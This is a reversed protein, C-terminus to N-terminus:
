TLITDTFLYGADACTVKEDFYERADIIWSDTAQDWWRRVERYVDSKILSSQNGEDGIWEFVYGANPEEIAPTPTRYLLLCSGKTANVEWMNVATFETGAVTEEDSSYIASGVLVEDLGFMQAILRKTVIAPEGGGFSYKIRELVTYEQCINDWTNADVVMVNPEVGILERMTKKATFIDEIFTNGTGDATKAWGGAADNTSTWNASTMCLSSVQYEKKLQIQRTAWNVGSQFPNLVADANNLTEIPVPHEIAYKICSYTDSSMKYGSRPKKAGPGVAEADMRFWAAKLFKFFYDSMKAVRVHPFVQDAIFMPNRYGISLSSLAADIHVSKSTPDM